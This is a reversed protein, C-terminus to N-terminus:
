PRSEDYGRYWGTEGIKKNASDPCEKLAYECAKAESLPQRLRGLRGPPTSNVQWRETPLEPTIELSSDGDARVKGSESCLGNYGKSTETLAKELQLNACEGFYIM